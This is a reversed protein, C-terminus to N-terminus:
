RLDLRIQSIHRFFQLCIVHLPTLRHNHSTAKIYVAIYIPDHSRIYDADSWNKKVDIGWGRRNTIIMYPSSEKIVTGINKESGPEVNYSAQNNIPDVQPEYGSLQYVNYGIPNDSEREEVMFKMGLLLDPVKVKYYAPIGSIKGYISKESM